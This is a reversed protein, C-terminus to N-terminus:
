SDLRMRKGESSSRMALELLEVVHRAERASVPPDAGRKISEALAKYFITWDGPQSPVAQKKGDVGFLTGYTDSPEQGFGLAGPVMGMRVHAEQVDLGAKVFTAREGHIRYRHGSDVAMSSAGLTIRLAGKGLRIEFGDDVTAGPRQIVVDAQLWDPMGFLQIAQDILHPGLDFLLGAGPGPKERWRDRVDPRYRDWRAEFWHVQGFVSEDVLRRVTLFDSDWRRNHYCTLCLGREQAVRELRDADDSSTTFPKDVVVHKGAELAALAQDFHLANPTALVVLGIDPRILLEDFNSLVDTQLHDAQIQAHQSSVIAVLTMGAAKIFPAHLFRGALGYGVLGVNVAM